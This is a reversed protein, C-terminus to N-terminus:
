LVNARPPQECAVPRFKRSVKGVATRSRSQAACSRAHQTHTLKVIRIGGLGIPPLNQASASAAFTCAIAALLAAAFFRMRWPYLHVEAHREPAMSWGESETAALATIVAGASSDGIM